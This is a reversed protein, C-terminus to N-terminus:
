WVGPILRARRNTFLRYPEGLERLLVREETHIRTVLGALAILSACALSAGNGLALGIGVCILLLGTYSPHRVWRYPGSDIVTQGERIRVDVTFSQGLTRISWWRLALGAAMLALGVAYAAWRAASLSAAGVTVALAFAGGIGVVVSGSSVLHTGRDARTGEHRVLTRIILFYEGAVFVALLVYFGVAADTDSYPLSSM